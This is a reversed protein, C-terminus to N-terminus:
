NVLFVDRFDECFDSKLPVTLIKQNRSKKNYSKSLSISRGIRTGRQLHEQPPRLPRRRPRVRGPHHLPWHLQARRVHGRRVGRVAAPVARADRDQFVLYTLPSEDAGLGPNPQSPIPHEM